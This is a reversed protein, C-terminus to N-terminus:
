TTIAIKLIKIIFDEKFRDFTNVVCKKFLMQLREGYMETM